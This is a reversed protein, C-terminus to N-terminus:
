KPPNPYKNHLFQDATPRHKTVPTFFSQFLCERAYFINGDEDEPDVTDAFLEAVEDDSLKEGSIQFANSIWKLPPM